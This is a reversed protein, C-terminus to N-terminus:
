IKQLFPEAEVNNGNSDEVNLEEKGKREKKEEDGWNTPSYSTGDDSITNIPLLLLPIIGMIQQWNKRFGLNFSHGIGVGKCCFWEITTVNKSIFHIHRLLLYGSIILHISLVMTGFILIFIEFRLTFKIIAIRCFSLVLMYLVGLVSYLVALFFYKYNKLGVCNVLWKCHHDMRLVCRGCRRCHHTRPPKYCNCIVCYYEEMNDDVPGKYPTRFRDPVSGPDAFFARAYSVIWLLGLSFYVSLLMALKISSGRSLPLIVVFIADYLYFIGLLFGAVV